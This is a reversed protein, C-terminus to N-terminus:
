FTEEFVISIRTCFLLVLYGPVLYGLLCVFWVLWVVFSLRNNEM